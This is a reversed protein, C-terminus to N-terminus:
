APAIARAMAWDNHIQGFYIVASASGYAFEHLNVKELFVLGSNKL